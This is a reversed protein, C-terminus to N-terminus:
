REKLVRFLEEVTQSLKLKNLTPMKVQIKGTTWSEKRYWLRAFFFSLDLEPDVDEVSILKWWAIVANRSLHLGDMWDNPRYYGVRILLQYHNGDIRHSGSSSLRQQALPEWMEILHPGSQLRTFFCHGKLTVVNELLLHAIEEQQGLDESKLYQEVLADLEDM